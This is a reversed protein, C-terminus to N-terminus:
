AARRVVSTGAKFLVYGVAIAGVIVLGWVGTTGLVQKSTLHLLSQQATM